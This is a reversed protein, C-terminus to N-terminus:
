RCPLTAQCAFSHQQAIKGAEDIGTEFLAQQRSNRLAPTAKTARADPEIVQETVQEGGAPSPRPAGSVLSPPHQPNASLETPRATAESKAPYAVDRYRSRVM